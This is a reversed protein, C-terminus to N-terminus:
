KRRLKVEADHSWDSIVLPQTTSKERTAKELSSISAPEIDPSIEIAPDRRVLAEM